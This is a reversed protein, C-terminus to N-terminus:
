PRLPPIVTPTGGMALISDYLIQEIYAGNHMYGGPDKTAVAYNYAATLMDFDFDRYRNAFSAPDTGAVGKFWYPYTDNDYFVPSSIPLDGTTAYAQMAALLEAKLVEIERFNDGPTGSLDQFRNGNHCENCDVTSPLFTHKAADVTNPPTRALSSNMHCGICTDLGRQQHLGVFTNQGTYDEPPRYQYGAEVDSGFFTAAAAYYHINIFDYSDYDTPAQVVTNATANAVSVGSERGQHCTMCINSANGLTATAGSPFMVPELAPNAVLDDYRTEPNDFLNTDNHCTVCDIARTPLQSTTPDGMVLKAFGGPSHCRTCSSSIGSPTFGDPEYDEDWHRFPEDGAAGHASIQWQQTKSATGIASGNITLNGRGTVAVSPTGGLDETSDYLLQQIYAGNHIFGAPDKSAVQYNYAAKLLTADFGYANTRSCPMGNDNCWYPYTNADYLIPTGQDNAYAQIAGYLDVLLAQINTYSQSPSGELTEFSSGSHCDNCRDVAPMWTHMENGEANKMHCGVCNAVDDPHSPFTNRPRYEKGAYHYGARAESGFLTAAAAYYHINLFSYPGVGGDGDIRAQVSDGSERGQHCTACINSASYLSVEASSPFKVPELYGFTALNSYVTPFTQHCNVCDLGLPLPVTRTNAGTSAYELFGVFPSQPADNLAAGHCKACSASVAGDADWHRWPEGTLDGHGSKAWETRIPTETLTYGESQEASYAGETGALFKLVTTETITIPATYETGQVVGMDDLVPSLDTTYYIPQGSMTSLEVTETPNFTRGAPTATVAGEVGGSGGTGGTGAMGGTGA